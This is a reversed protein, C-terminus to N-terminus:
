RLPHERTGENVDWWYLDVNRQRMRELAVQQAWAQMRRM